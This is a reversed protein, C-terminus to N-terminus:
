ASSRDYFYKSHMTCASFADSFKCLVRPFVVTTILEMSTLVVLCGFLMRNSFNLGLDM